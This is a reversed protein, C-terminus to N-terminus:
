AVALSSVSQHYMSADDEGLGFVDLRNSSWADVAFPGRFKQDNLAGWTSEWNNGNWSNHMMRSTAQDLGFVDLRDSSWSVLTPAVM